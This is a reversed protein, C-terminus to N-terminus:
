LLIEKPAVATHSAAIHPTLGGCIRPVLIPKTHFLEAPRPGDLESIIFNMYISTRILAILMWFFSIM